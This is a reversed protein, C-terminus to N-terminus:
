NNDYYKYKLAIVVFHQNISESPETCITQALSFKYNSVACTLTDVWEQAARELEEARAGDMEMVGSGDAKARDPVYIHITVFGTQIEDTLGSTFIIVVDEKRSDKPRYGKRYVDGTVAESLQSSRLLAYIDGQIQLSTKTM